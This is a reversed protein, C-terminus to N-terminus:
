KDKLVPGIISAGFLLALAFYILSTTTTAAITGRPISKQPDKLDGSMNTGTMIGTVAPFYIAMLTFFGVDFDQFVEFLRYAQRGPVAEGAKMEEYASNNRLTGMNFGPFANKCVISASGFHTCIPSDDGEKPCFKRQVRFVKLKAISILIHFTSKEKTASLVFMTSLYPTMLIIM